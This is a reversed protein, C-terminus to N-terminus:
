SLEERRTTEDIRGRSGWFHTILLHGPGHTVRARPLVLENSVGRAAGQCLAEDRLPYLLGETHIGEVVPSLPLLSVLDGTNGTIVRDGGALLLEQHVDVLRVDVGRLRDATLLLVM